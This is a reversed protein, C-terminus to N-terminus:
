IEDDEFFIEEDSADASFDHLNDGDEDVIEGDIDADEFEDWIDKVVSEVLDEFDSDDLDDYEDQFEDLDVEIEVDIDDEDGKLTFKWEIDKFDDYDKDLQDELDDLDDQVDDDDDRNSKSNKLDTIQKNLSDITGQLSRIQADRAALENAQQSNPMDKVTVTYKTGDWAVDKNFVGAMMRLPIYTTGNVIFPEITTPVAAGNYIVKINNYKAQLNKTGTAAQSSTPILTTTLILASAIALYQKKFM